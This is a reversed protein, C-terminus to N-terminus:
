PQIDLLFRYGEGLNRAFDGRASKATADSIAIASVADAM